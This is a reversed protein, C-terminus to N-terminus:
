AARVLSVDSIFEARDILEVKRRWMQSYFNARIASLDKDTIAAACKVAELLPMPTLCSGRVEEEVEGPLRFRSFQYGALWRVLRLEAKAPLDLIAVNVGSGALIGALESSRDHDATKFLVVRIGESNQFLLWPRLLPTRMTRASVFVAPDRVLVTVDEQYDLITLVDREWASAFAVHHGMRAFWWRGEYSQKGRWSSIGVVPVLFETSIASFESVGLNVPARDGDRRYVVRPEAMLSYVDM